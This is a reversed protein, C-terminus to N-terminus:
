AAGGVTGPIGALCEIGGLGQRVTRLVLKQMDGELMKSVPVGTWKAVVEAIDEEDVEEKLFVGDTQLEALRNQEEGLQKELEPITGYQLKAAAELDGAQRAQELKLKAEELKEKGGRMKEIEEKESQWKAKM